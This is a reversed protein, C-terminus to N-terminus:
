RALYLRSLWSPEACARFSMLLAKAAAGRERVTQQAHINYAAARM